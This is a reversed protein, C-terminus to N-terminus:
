RAGRADRYGLLQIETANATAIMAASFLGAAALFIRMRHLM